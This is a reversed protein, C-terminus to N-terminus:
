PIKEGYEGYKILLETFEDKHEILWQRTKCEVSPDDVDFFDDNGLSVLYARAVDEHIQNFNNALFKEVKERDYEREM